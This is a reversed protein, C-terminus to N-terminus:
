RQQMQPMYVHRPTKTAELEVGSTKAGVADTSRRLSQSGEDPIKAAFSRRASFLLAVKGGQSRVMLLDRSPRSRKAARRASHEVAPWALSWWKTSWRERHTGFGFVLPEHQILLLNRAFHKLSAVRSNCHAMLHGLVKVPRRPALPGWCTSRWERGCLRIHWVTPPLRLTGGCPSSSSVWQHSSVVQASNEALPSRHALRVM